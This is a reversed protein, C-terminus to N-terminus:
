QKPTILNYEKLLEDCKAVGAELKAAEMMARLVKLTVAFGERMNKVYSAPYIPVNDGFPGKDFTPGYFTAEPMSQGEKWPKYYDEIFSETVDLYGPLLKYSLEKSFNGPYFYLKPSEILTFGKENKHGNAYEVAEPTSLKFAIKM